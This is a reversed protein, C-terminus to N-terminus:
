SKACNALQTKADAIKGNYLAYRGRAIYGLPLSARDIAEFFVFLPMEKQETSKYVAEHFDNEVEEPMDTKVIPRFWVCICAQPPFGPRM